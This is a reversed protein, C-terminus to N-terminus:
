ERSAAGTFKFQSQRGPNSALTGSAANKEFAIERKTKIFECM